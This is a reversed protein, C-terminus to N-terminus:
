TMTCRVQISEMKRLQMDVSTSENINANALVVENITDSDLQFHSDAILSSFLISTLLFPFLIPLSLVSFLFSFLFSFVSLFTFLSSPYFLSIFLIFFPPISFLLTISSIPSHFYPLFLYLSLFYALVSSHFYYTLESLFFVYLRFLALWVAIYAVL